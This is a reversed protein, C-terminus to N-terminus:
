LAVVRYLRGGARRLVSSAAPSGKWGHRGRVQLLHLEGRAEGDGGSVQAVRHNGGLAKAFSVELLESGAAGAGGGAASAGGAGAAAGAAAGPAVSALLRAAREPLRASGGAAAAPAAAAGAGACAVILSYGLTGWALAQVPGALPAPAPTPAAAGGRSGAPAAAAAAAARPTRSSEPQRVTCMLRCGSASWVVAGQRSYGVAVARCDPSWAVAAAGGTQSVSHGWDGLHLSRVLGDAAWPPAAALGGSLMHSLAGPPPPPPASGRPAPQSLFPSAGSPLREFGGAGAVFDARAPAGNGPAGPASQADLRM